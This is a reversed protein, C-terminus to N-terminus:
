SAEMCVLSPTIGPMISQGHEKGRKTGARKDSNYFYFGLLVQTDTDGAVQTQTRAVFRPLLGTRTREKYVPLAQLLLFNLAHGTPTRHGRISM